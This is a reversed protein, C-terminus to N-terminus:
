HWRKLYCIAEKLNELKEGFMGIGTNCRTCLIGRVDGTNHIHDVFAEKLTLVKKCIGCKKGQEKFINNFDDLTIGYNKILERNRIKDKNRARYNKGWELQREKNKHYYTKSRRIRCKKCVWNKKKRGVLIFPEGRKCYKCYKIKSEKKKTM